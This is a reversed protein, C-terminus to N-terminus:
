ESIAPWSVGFGTVCVIRVLPSAIGHMVGVCDGTVTSIEGEIVSVQGCPLMLVAVIDIVLIQLVFM